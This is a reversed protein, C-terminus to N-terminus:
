DMCGNAMETNKSETAGAREGKPGVKPQEEKRRGLRATTVEATL